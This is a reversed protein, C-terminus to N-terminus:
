IHSIGYEKRLRTIEKDLLAIDGIGKRKWMELKRCRKEATKHEALDKRQKANTPKIIVVSYSVMYGIRQLCKRRAFGM